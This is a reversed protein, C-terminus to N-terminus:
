TCSKLVKLFKAFPKIAGWDEPNDVVIPQYEPNAPVLSGVQVPGDERDERRFRVRKVTFRDGSDPDVSEHLSFIGVDGNKPTWAGRSFLCYAGDPIEPEMSRGRVQVICLGKAVSVGTGPRVWAETGGEQFDSFEGAAVKMRYVPLTTRYRAAPTDDVEFPLGQQLKPFAAVRSRTRHAARADAPAPVLPTQYPSGSRIAEALADYVDLIVRRTRFEGHAKEDNRRVIPFTDLVYAADDRSIGYLHFFAADLEARLLARRGPEWRFPPGAYGVDKAFRELDWSTYTL